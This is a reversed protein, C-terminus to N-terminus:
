VIKALIDPQRQGGGIGAMTAFIRTMLECPIVDKRMVEGSYAGLPRRLAM